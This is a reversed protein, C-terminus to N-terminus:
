YNWFFYSAVKWHLADPGHEKHERHLWTGHERDWVGCGDILEFGL